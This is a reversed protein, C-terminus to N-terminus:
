SHKHANDEHTEGEQVPSIVFMTSTGEAILTGDKLTMKAEADVLNRRRKTTSATIVLPEGIKAPRKFRVQIAATAVNMGEYWATWAMAEDLLCEIIGGHVIGVWGQHLENPTFEGRGIKGDWQLDFKLGIPNAQGSVFNMDWGKEPEIPVRPQNIM